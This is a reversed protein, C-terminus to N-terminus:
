CFESNKRDSITVQVLACGVGRVTVNLANPLRLIPVTHLILRNEDSINYTSFMQDGIVEVTINTEGNQQLSGFM